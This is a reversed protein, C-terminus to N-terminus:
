LWNKSVWRVVGVPVALLAIYVLYLDLNNAKVWSMRCDPTQLHMPRRAVHKGVKDSSLLEADYMVEEIRDAAVHKRRSNASAIRQLRLVNQSFSGGEDRVLTQINTALEEAVFKRRDMNIGVGAAELRKGNALQDGYVPMAVVPVGHFVAEMTSSAGCHSLYLCVSPHDLIARQPVWGMIKFREDKNDLVAYYDVRDEGISGRDSELEKLVSARDKWAWVVGDIDGSELAQTLGKILRRVRWGPLEVHSGFAVYIVKKHVQLFHLLEPATDLPQFTDALVPGIPIMLPPLDKPVELGFFSNVLVLYDPKQQPPRPGLGMERRMKRQFLIYDKMAFILQLVHYEERLRDWLSAHESSLHKLQAGPMGPIYKRPVMQIPMQPYHVALPIRFENMIDICSDALLDALIFDPRHAPNSVLAKLNRYTEPWWSHFKMLARFTGKRGEATSADSEDFLRYLAKDEEVTMNRGVVHIKSVFAHPTALGQHGDLCAFEIIHGRAHLIRCIELIPAACTYRGVTVVALISRSPAREAALITM